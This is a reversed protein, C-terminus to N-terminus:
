YHFFHLWDPGQRVTAYVGGGPTGPRDDWTWERGDASTASRARERSRFYMRWGEDTRVVKAATSGEREWLPTADELRGEFRLGDASEQVRLHNKWPVLAFWRDAGRFVETDAIAAASALGVYDFHVGDRGRALAMGAGVRHGSGPMPLLYFYLLYEGEPTVVVSPDATSFGAPLDGRLGVPSLRVVRDEAVEAVTLTNQPPGESLGALGYGRERAQAAFRELDPATVTEPLLAEALALDRRLPKADVFWLRVKGDTGVAADPVSGMDLLDVHPAGAMTVGDTTHLVALTHRWPGDGPFTARVHAAERDQLARLHALFEPKPLSGGELLEVLPADSTPAPRCLTQAAALAALVVLAALALRRM